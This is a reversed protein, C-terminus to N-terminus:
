RLQHTEQGQKIYTSSLTEPEESYRLPGIETAKKRFSNQSVAPTTLAIVVCRALLLNLKARQTAMEGRSPHMIKKM